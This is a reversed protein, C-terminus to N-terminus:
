IITWLARKPSQLNMFDLISVPIRGHKDLGLKERKYQSIRLESLKAKKGDDNARKRKATAKPEPRTTTPLANQIKKENQKQFCCPYCVNKGDKNKGTAFSPADRLKDGVYQNFDRSYVYEGEKPKGTNSIINGCVGSEVEKQTLPGEQGPKSCWFRPCIYHM